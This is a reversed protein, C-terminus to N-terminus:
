YMSVYSLVQDLRTFYGGTCVTVMLMLYFYTFISKRISM